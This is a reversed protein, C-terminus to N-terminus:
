KQASVYHLRHHRELIKAKCRPLKESVSVVGFPLSCFMSFLCLEGVYRATPQLLSNTTFLVLVCFLFYCELFTWSLLRHFCMGYKPHPFHLDRSLVAPFPFLFFSFFVHPTSLSPVINLM